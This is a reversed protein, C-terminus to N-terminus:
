FCAQQPFGGAIIEEVLMNEVPQRLLPSGLHLPPFFGPIQLYSSSYSIIAQFDISFVPPPLSINPNTRSKKLSGADEVPYRRLISTSLGSASNRTKSTDSPTKLRCNSGFYLNGKIPSVRNSIM